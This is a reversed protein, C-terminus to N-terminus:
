PAERSLSRVLRQMGDNRGEIAAMEAEDQSTAAGERSLSRVMRAMGDNRGEIAAMMVEDTTTKQLRQGGQLGEAGQVGGVGGDVTSGATSVESPGGNAVGNAVGNTTPGTSPTVGAEPDLKQPPRVFVTSGSLWYTPYRRRGVNNIIMAWALMLLASILVIYIFHWSM